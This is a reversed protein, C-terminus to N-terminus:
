PYLVNAPESVLDRTLFVGDAISDLRAYRKRATAPSECIMRLNKLSPKDDKEQKTLYKDFRYSRLRAGYAIEAAMEAPSLECGTLSDVAVQVTAHGRDALAAYIRGGAAQLGLVDIDGAKGLGIVYVRELKSGAPALLTMSQEKKAKFRSAARMARTIGGDLRADLEAASPALKREQTAIVVLVGTEPLDSKSFSVKM